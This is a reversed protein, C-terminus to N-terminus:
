VRDDGESDTYYLVLMDYAMRKARKVEDTTDNIRGDQIVHNWLAVNSEHRVDFRQMGPEERGSRTLRVKIWVMYTSSFGEDETLRVWRGCACGSHLSSIILTAHDAEGVFRVSSIAYCIECRDLIGKWYIDDFDTM